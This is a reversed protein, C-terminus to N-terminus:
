FDLLNDTSNGLLHRRLNRAGLPTLVAIRILTLPLCSKIVCNVLRILKVFEIVFGVLLCICLSVTDM